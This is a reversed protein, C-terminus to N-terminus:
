KKVCNMSQHLAWSYLRSKQTPNVSVVWPHMMVGSATIAMTSEPPSTGMIGKPSTINDITITNTVLKAARGVFIVMGTNTILISTSRAITPVTKNYSLLNKTGPEQNHSSTKVVFEHVQFKLNGAKM